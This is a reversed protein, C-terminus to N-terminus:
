EDCTQEIRRSEARSLEVGRMAGGRLEVGHFTSRMRWAVTVIWPMLGSECVAARVQHAAEDLRKARTKEPEHTIEIQEPAGPTLETVRLKIKEAMADMTRTINRTVREGTQDLSSLVGELGFVRLGM